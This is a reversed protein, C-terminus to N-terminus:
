FLHFPHQRSPSAEDSGSSSPPTGMDASNFSPRKLQKKMRQIEDTARDLEGALMSQRELPVDTICPTIHMDVYVKSSRSTPRAHSMRVSCIARKLRSVSWM